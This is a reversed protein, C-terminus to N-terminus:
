LGFYVCLFFNFTIHLFEDLFDLNGGHSRLFLWYNFTDFKSVTPFKRQCKSRGGKRRCFNSKTPTERDACHNKERQWDLDVRFIVRSFNREWSITSTEESYIPLVFFFCMGKTNRQEIRQETAALHEFIMWWALVNAKKEKHGRSRHIKILLPSKALFLAVRAASISLNRALGIDRSEQPFWGGAANEHSNM